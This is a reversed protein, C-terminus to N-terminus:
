FILVPENRISGALNYHLKSPPSTIIIIITIAITIMYKTTPIFYTSKMSGVPRM